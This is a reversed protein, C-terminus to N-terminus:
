CVVQNSLFRKIVDVCGQTQEMHIHHGGELSVFDSQTLWESRVYYTKEVLKFSSSAGIFLVPCSINRFIAEAQAETMRLSSKTRLKPDSSWVTHGTDNTKVNRLLIQRAHDAQIDTTKCRAAVLQEVDLPQLGNTKKVRSKISAQIQEVSTEAPMTLPGCADVSIVAKVHEPFIAAYITSLIGGLSHGVLTVPALEYQEILQYLDQIYDIQNYNAGVPRHSSRGHGILDIAIYRYEDFGSALCRMSEANDLFGHLALVTEGHTRTQFGALNGVNDLCFNVPEM